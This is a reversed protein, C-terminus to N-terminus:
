VIVIFITGVFMDFGFIKDFDAINKIKFFIWLFRETGLYFARVRNNSSKLLKLVFFFVNAQKLINGIDFVHFQLNQYRFKFLRSREFRM